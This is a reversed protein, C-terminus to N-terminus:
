TRPVLWRPLILAATAAAVLVVGGHVLGLHTPETIPCHVQLLLGGLCGSAAGLGLAAARGGVPLVGRLAIAGAVLPVLATILGMRLCYHGYGVVNAATAEYTTSLGPVTRALTLGAIMFIAAAAAGLAGAHRWRPMVESSRPVIAVFAVGVFAVTWAGLYLALWLKPLSAFDRRVSLVVFLLSFYILSACLLRGLEFRPSRMTTPESSEVEALLEASPPPPTPRTDAGDDSLQALARGLEGKPDPTGNGQGTSM